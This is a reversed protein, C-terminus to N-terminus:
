LRFDVVLQQNAHHRELATKIIMRRANRPKGARAGRRFRGSLERCVQLDSTWVHLRDVLFHAPMM